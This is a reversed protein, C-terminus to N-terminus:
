PVVLESTRTLAKGEYDFTSLVRYRGAPLEGPYETRVTVREGPLLRRPEFPAKGVITGSADLIVAVGKSVVPETGDNTFSVEFAANSTASQLQATLDSALLSIANSLTFTLLTGLSATASTKGNEIKTTGKFLVVVARQETTFPLTLTVVVSASQRPPVTVSKTSFVATAAISNPREGAASFYRKGDRTFVDKAELDFSLELSTGNTLTVTQTTSQGFSGRLPVVAPSLSVSDAAALATSFVLAAAGGLLVRANM